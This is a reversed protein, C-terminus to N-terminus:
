FLFRDTFVTEQIDLSFAPLSSHLVSWKKLVVGYSTVIVDCASVVYQCVFFLFYFVLQLKVKSRRTNRSYLKLMSGSTFSESSSGRTSM